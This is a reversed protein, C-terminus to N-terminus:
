LKFAVKEVIKVQVPVGDKMAPRYKWKRAAREASMAFDTRGGTLIEVAAVQGQADILLRMEVDAERRMQRAAPPYTPAPRSLPAPPKDADKLEVLSGWRTRSEFVEPSIRPRAADSGVPLPELRPPALPLPIDAVTADADVQAAMDSSSAPAPEPPQAATQPAPSPTGTVTQPAPPPAAKGASPTEPRAQVAPAPKSPAANPPVASPAPSVHLPAPENGETEAVLPTEEPDPVPTDAAPPALDAIPAPHVASAVPAAGPRLLVWSGLGALVLVCAALVVPLRSRRPAPTPAAEVIPTRLDPPPSPVLVPAPAVPSVPRPAPATAVPRPTPAPAAKKRAVPLPAPAPKAAAAMPTPVPISPLLQDLQAMIDDETMTSLDMRAPPEAPTRAPTAAAQVAIPGLLDMEPVQPTTPGPLLPSCLSVLTEADVPRPLFRDAGYQRVAKMQQSQAITPAGLIFVRTKNGHARRIEQCVEFAHKKPLMAEMFVVPPHLRRFADLGAIGDRAVEVNYGAATLPEVTAALNRPEYDIVLVTPREM